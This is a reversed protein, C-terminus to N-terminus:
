RYVLISLLVGGRKLGVTLAVGPCWSLWAYANGAAANVGDSAVMFM